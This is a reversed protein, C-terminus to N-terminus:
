KTPPILLSAVLSLDSKDTEVKRISDNLQYFLPKQIQIYNDIRAAVLDTTENPRGRALIREMALVRSCILRLATVPRGMVSLKAALLNFRELAIPERPYGDVVIPRTATTITNDLWDFLGSTSPREQRLPRTCTVLIMEVKALFHRSELLRSLALHQFGDHQALFDGLTTKGAGPKGFLTVLMYEECSRILCSFTKLVYERCAHGTVRYGAGSLQETAGDISYTPQYPGVIRGSERRRDIEMPSADDKDAKSGNVRSSVPWRQLYDNPASLLIEKGAKGSLWPAFKDETLLVPMRDHVEAVFENPKTVIM